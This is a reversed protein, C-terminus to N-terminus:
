LSVRGQSVADLVCMKSSPLTINEAVNTVCVGTAMFLQMFQPLSYQIGKSSPLTNVIASFKM